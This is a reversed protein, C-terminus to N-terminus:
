SRRPDSAPTAPEVPEIIELSSASKEVGPPFYGPRHAPVDAPKAPAEVAIKPPGPGGLGGSEQWSVIRWREGRKIFVHTVRGQVEFDPKAHDHRSRVVGVIVAAEGYLRVKLDSIEFSTIGFTGSKVDALYTAKDTVNGVPDIGTLDDALLPAIAEADRGVVARALIREMGRLEQEDEAQHAIAPPNAPTPHNLAGPGQQALVAAGAAVVVLAPAIKWVNAITMARCVGEALAVVTAPVGGATMARGAAVSMAASVSASAWAPPVEQFVPSAGPLIASASPGRRDLRARLRDRARSLRSKVTGVPWGLLRAAEECTRGELYCLVLPARYREPLRGIEEHLAASPEPREEALFLRPSLEAARREHRRRRAASARSASAVRLAVGHLWPGLADRRRISAAKRALVLFTAQFADQADHPDRLADRCVRLVMPGHRDVLAAFAREGAEDERRAQFRELLQGDALGGAAGGELLSRMRRHVEGGHGMAM